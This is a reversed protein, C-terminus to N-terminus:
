NGYKNLLEDILETKIVLLTGKDTNYDVTPADDEIAGSIQLEAVSYIGDFKGIPILVSKSGKCIVLVHDTAISPKPTHIVQELNLCPTLRGCYLALGKVIGSNNGPITQVHKNETIEDVLELPVALRLTGFQFCFLKGKCSTDFKIHETTGQYTHNQSNAPSNDKIKSSIKKFAEWNLVADRSNERIHGFNVTM